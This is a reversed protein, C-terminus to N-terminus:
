PVELIVNEPKIDRQVIGQVHAEGLSDCIGDLIHRVRESTMPGRQMEEHLSHGHLLEMALYLVGEATQDFDYIAVTHAARLVSAAQAERKFRGVVQPDRAMRPHLVKIACQRGMAVQEGRYVAGFGGEG